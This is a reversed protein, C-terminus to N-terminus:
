VIFSCPNAFPGARRVCGAARATRGRVQPTWCPWSSPSACATGPGRPPWGCRRGSILGPSSCDPTSRVQVILCVPALRPRQPGFRYWVWTQSSGRRGAVAWAGTDPELSSLARETVSVFQEVGGVAELSDLAKQVAAIYASRLRRPAVDAGGTFPQEPAQERRGAAAQQEAELGQALKAAAGARESRDRSWQSPLDSSLSASAAGACEAASGTASPAERSRLVARDEILGICAGRLAKYAQLVPVHPIPAHPLCRRACDSGPRRLRPPALSARRELARVGVSFCACVGVQGLRSSGLELAMQRDLASRLPIGAHNATRRRNAAGVGRPVGYQALALSCATVCATEVRPAGGGSVGSECGRRWTTLPRTGPVRM